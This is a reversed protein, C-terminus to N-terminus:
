KWLVLLNDRCSNDVEVPVKPVHYCSGNDFASVVDSNSSDSVGVCYGHVNRLFPFHFTFNVFILLIEFKFSSFFYFTM